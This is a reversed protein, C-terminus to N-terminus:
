YFAIGPRLVLQFVLLLAILAVAAHPIRNSGAVGLAKVKAARWAGAQMWPVSVAVVLVPLLVVEIWERPVRFPLILPLGILAPVTALRFIFRTRGRADAIRAPDIALTLLLRGLWLAIPPIVALAVLAAAFKTGSDLELYSMAMGVDSGAILAGFVVQPLAMFIGCCAMWFWLLGSTISRPKARALWLACAIGVLVTALAGTGQFLSALPHDGSWGHNNHYLTPQLGPTMAKPLVLFLEQIFFTLNFALVFLLASLLTPWWDPSRTRVAPMDYVARRSRVWGVMGLLAPGVVVVFIAAIFLTNTSMAVGHDPM